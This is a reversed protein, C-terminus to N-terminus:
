TVAKWDSWCVLAIDGDGLSPIPLLWLTVSDISEAHTEQTLRHSVLFRPPLVNPVRYTKTSLLSNSGSFLCLQELLMTKSDAM